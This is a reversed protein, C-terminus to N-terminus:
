SPSRSRFYEGLLIKKVGELAGVVVFPKTRGRVFLGAEDNHFQIAAAVGVVKGSRAEELLRELDAVLPEVVELSKPVAGGHLTTVNGSM